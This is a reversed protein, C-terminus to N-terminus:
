ESVFGPNKVSAPVIFHNLSEGGAFKARFNFDNEGRGSLAVVGSEGAPQYRLHVPDDRRTQSRIGVEFSRCIDNDWM